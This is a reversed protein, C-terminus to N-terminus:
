VAGHPVSGDLCGDEEVQVACRAPRWRGRGGRSGCKESRWSARRRRLSSFLFRNRAVTTAPLSPVEHSGFLNTKGALCQPRKESPM